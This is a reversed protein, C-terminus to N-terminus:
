ACTASTWLSRITCATKAGVRIPPMPKADKDHLYEILGAGDEKMQGYMIGVTDHDDPENMGSAHILEHLVIVHKQGATMRKINGPLFICAFFIESRKQDTLTSAQGHPRDAKFDARTSLTDGYYKYQKAGHALVLVVNAEKAEKVAVLKVGLGLDNFSRISADVATSWTKAENFVNLQGTERIRKLWKTPMENPVGSQKVTLRM